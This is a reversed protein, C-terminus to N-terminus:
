RRDGGPRSARLWRRRSRLPLRKRELAPALRCPDLELLAAGGFGFRDGFPILGSGIEGGLLVGVGVQLDTDLPEFAVDLRRAALDEGRHVCRRGQAVRHLMGGGGAAADALLDGLEVDFRLVQSDFGLPGRLLARGGLGTHLARALRHIKQADLPRGALRLQRRRSRRPLAAGPIEARRLLLDGADGRPQPRELLEVGCAGLVAVAGPQDEGLGIAIDALDPRHGVIELDVAAVLARDFGTEAIEELVNDDAGVLLSRCSQAEGLLPVGPADAEEHRVLRRRRDRGLRALSVARHRHRRDHAYRTRGFPGDGRAEGACPDRFRLVRRSGRRGHDVACDDREVPDHIAAGVLDLAACAGLRAADERRLAFDLLQALAELGAALRDFAQALLDRAEVHQDGPGIGGDGRHLRLQVTLFFVDDTELQLHAAARVRELPEVPFLLLDADLAPRGFLFQARLFGTLLLCPRRDGPDFLFLAAGVITQVRRLPPQELRAVRHLRLRPARRLRLGSVRREGLPDGRERGVDPAELLGSALQFRPDGRPAFLQQARLLPALLQALRDHRGLGREVRVQAREVIEALVDAVGLLAAHRKRPVNSSCSARIM